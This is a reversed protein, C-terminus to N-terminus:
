GAAASAAAASGDPTDYCRIYPARATVMTGAETSAIELSGGFQRMRDKMGTMGIGLAGLSGGEFEKLKEASIGTGHDKVELVVSGEDISLQVEASPSGSHRHVNTLCEQLVRFMAVELEPSLRGFDSSATFTTSIGSRRTFGDLYSAIACRLGLERLMPPYLLYSLTRVETISQELAEICDALKLAAEGSGDKLKSGVYGLQIRLLALCQGVSDHLERAIHGREQEQVEYIKGSVQRLMAESKKQATIDHIVATVIARRGMRVPTVLIESPFESGDKRLGYIESAAILRPQGEDVVRDRFQPCGARFREPVMMEIPRGILESAPYGFVREVQRNAILIRGEEDMVLIADPVSELALRYLEGSEDREAPREDPSPGFPSSNVGSTFSQEEFFMM